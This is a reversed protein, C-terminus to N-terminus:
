EVAVQACGVRPGPCAKKIAVAQSLMGSVDPFHELTPRLVCADCLLKVLCQGSWVRQKAVAALTHNAALWVSNCASCGGMSAAMSQASLEPEIGAAQLAFALTAASIQRGLVEQELATMTALAPAAGSNDVAREVARGVATALAEHHELFLQLLMSVFGNSLCATQDPPQTALAAKTEALDGPPLGVNLQAIGTASRGEVGEQDAKTEEAKLSAAMAQTEARVTALVADADYEGALPRLLGELRALPAEVPGVSQIYAEELSDGQVRAAWWM